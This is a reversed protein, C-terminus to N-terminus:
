AAQQLNYILQLGRVTLHDDVRDIADTNKAYLSALGGTAIVVPNGNMESKMRSIIGEILGLYGYYIGSQMAGTTNTGITKEPQTIAVGHLKAAAATLADLSVNVGPAIVGGIYSGEESIADFTTATGFDIIILAQEYQTWAAYANVLRDAGLEQPNDLKVPMNIPLTDRGVTYLNCSLYKECLLRIPFNTDPVVSSLIAAGITHMDVKAQELLPSLLAAYEDETRQPDTALRWVHEPKEDCLSFVTHTNGVDIALLKM